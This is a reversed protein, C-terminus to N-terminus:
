TNGTVVGQAVSAIGADASIWGVQATTIVNNYADRATATLTTSAGVQVNASEPAVTLSAVNENAAAAAPDDCGVTTAVILATALGRAIIRVKDGLTELMGNM